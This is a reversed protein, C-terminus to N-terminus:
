YRFPAHLDKVYCVVPFYELGAAAEDAVIHVIQQEM